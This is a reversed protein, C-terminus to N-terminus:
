CRKWEFFKRKKVIYSKKAKMAMPKDSKSDSYFNDILDFDFRQGFRKVKEEGYCNKGRFHGNRYDVDSAIINKVNIREGFAKILFEPSASIIVDDMRKQQQYWDTINKMESEVFKNIIENIKIYQLFSFYVEKYKEKSIRGMKYLIAARFQNPFCKLFIYPKQRIVYLYLQISSDKKYITKDFDYVNM